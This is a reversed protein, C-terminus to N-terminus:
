KWSIGFKDISADLDFSEMLPMGTRKLLYETVRDIDTM